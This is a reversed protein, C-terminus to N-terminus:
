FMIYQRSVYGVQDGYGVLLWQPKTAFVTVEAGNPIKGIVFGGDDSDRVNVPDGDLTVVQYTDAMATSIVLCVLILFTLGLTRKM